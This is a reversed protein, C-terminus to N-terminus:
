SFISQDEKKIEIRFNYIYCMLFDKKDGDSSIVMRNLYYKISVNWIYCLNRHYKSMRSLKYLKFFCWFYISVYASVVSAKSALQFM